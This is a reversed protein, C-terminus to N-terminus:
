TPNQIYDCVKSLNKIVVVNNDDAEVAAANVKKAEASVDDDLGQIYLLLSFICLALHHNPPYNCIDM